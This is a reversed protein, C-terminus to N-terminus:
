ILKKRTGEIKICFLRVVAVIFEPNRGCSLNKITKNEVTNGMLNIVKLHNVNRKYTLSKMFGYRRFLLIGHFAHQFMHSGDNNGSKLTVSSVDTLM